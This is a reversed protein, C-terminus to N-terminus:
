TRLAKPTLALFDKSFEIDYTSEGINEELGKIIKNNLGIIWELGNKYITYQTPTKNQKTNRKAYPYIINYCYQSFSLGKEVSNGKCRFILQRYTSIRRVEGNWEVSRNTQRQLLIM